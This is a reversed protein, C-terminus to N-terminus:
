GNWQAIWVWIFPVIVTVSYARGPAPRPRRPSRCCRRARRCTSSCRSRCARGGRVVRAFQERTALATGQYLEDLQVGAILEGHRTRFEEPRRRCRGTSSSSGAAPDSRRGRRGCRPSRTPAAPPARVPLLGPRVRRGTRARERRGPPDRDPRVPGAAEVNARARMVSDPEFEVGVLEAGPVPPGDRHALPRRRLPHRRRARRPGPRRRAAAARRAVEQFFVAIDQVTLREISVRYRDPRDTIPRGPGSSSSCGAGTWRRRDGLPRVPRRPVRPAARRAPRDGDGRRDDAAATSRRRARPRRRGMGLRRDGRAPLGRGRGARGTTLGARGAARLQAFLGSSSASTCSGPTTSGPWAPSSTTSDIMSSCRHLSQRMRSVRVRVPAVCRDTNMETGPEAATIAVELRATPGRSWWALAAGAVSRGAELQRPGEPSRDRPRLDGAPFGKAKDNYEGRRQIAPAVGRGSFLPAKEGMRQAYLAAQVDAPVVGAPAPKYGQGLALGVAGLALAGVFTALVGLPASQNAHGTMPQATSASM